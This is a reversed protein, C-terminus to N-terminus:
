ENLTDLHLYMSNEYKPDLDALTEVDKKGLRYIMDYVMGKPLDFLLTFLSQQNKKLKNFNREVFRVLNVLHDYRHNEVMQFVAKRVQCGPSGYNLLGAKPIYSVKKEDMWFPDQICKQFFDHEMLEQTLARREPKDVDLLLSVINMHLREDESMMFRMSQQPIKRALELKENKTMKGKNELYRAYSSM